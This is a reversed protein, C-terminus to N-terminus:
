RFKGNSKSGRIHDYNRNFESIIFRMCHLTQTARKFSPRFRTANEKRTDIAMQLVDRYKAPVRELYRNGADLKSIVQGTEITYLQRAVGLVGWETFRPFAALLLRNIGFSERQKVWNAWYSNINQHLQEIVEEPSVTIELYQTPLGHATFSAAKLEFLAFRDLELERQAMMKNNFFSPFQKQGHTLAQVTVYYGNFKPQKFKKEIYRHIAHLKKITAAGPEDTLVAMFDIDSKGSHYDNLAVSGTIYLGELSGPCDLNMKAIYTTLIQQVRTPINIM